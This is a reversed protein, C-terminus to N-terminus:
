KILSQYAAAYRDYAQRYEGAAAAADGKALQAQAKTIDVGAAQAQNVADLVVERVLELKGGASASAFFSVVRTGDALAREITVRLGTDGSTSLSSALADVSSQSARTSVASSVKVAAGEVDATSALGTLSSGLTTVNTNLTAIQSGLAQVSSENAKGALTAALANVSTESARTGVSDLVGQQESLGEIVLRLAFPGDPGEVTSWGYGYGWTVVHDSQVLQGETAILGMGQTSYKGTGLVLMYDGSPLTVNLPIRQDGGAASFVVHAVADADTFPTTPSIATGTVRVIAAYFTGTGTLNGVGVRTILTTTTLRFPVGVAIEWYLTLTNATTQNFTATEVIPSQASAPATFCLGIALVIVSIFGRM